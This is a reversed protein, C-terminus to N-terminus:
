LLQQRLAAALEHRSFHFEWTNMADVDGFYYTSGSDDAAGDYDSPDILICDHMKGNMDAIRLLFGEDTLIEEIIEYCTRDDTSSDELEGIILSLDDPSPFRRPGSYWSM